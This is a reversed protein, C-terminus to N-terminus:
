ETPSPPQPDHPGHDAGLGRLWEPLPLTQMTTTSIHARVSAARAVVAGGCSFTHDIRFSTTRGLRLELQQLLLDGARAPAVYDCSTHVTPSGVGAALEDWAAVGVEDLFDQEAEAMYHYYMPFFILGSRDDDGVYVRRQRQYTAVM